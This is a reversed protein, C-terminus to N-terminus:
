PETVWSCFNELAQQEYASVNTAPLDCRLFAILEPSRRIFTQTPVSDPKYGPPPSPMRPPLDTSSDFSPEIRIAGVVRPGAPEDVGDVLVVNADNLAIERDLIWLRRSAPDFRVSLQVGGQSIWQTRMQSGDTGSMGGGSSSGGASGKERDRWYWGPSGRWLILLELAGVGRETTVCMDTALVSPSVPGTNGSSGAGLQSFMAAAALMRRM